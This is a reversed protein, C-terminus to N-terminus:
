YTQNKVEFIDPKTCNELTVYLNVVGCVCMCVCKFNLIALWIQPSEIDQNLFLFSFSFIYIKLIISFVIKAMKFWYERIFKLLVINYQGEEQSTEFNFHALMWRFLYKKVIPLPLPLHRSNDCSLQRNSYKPTYFYYSNNSQQINLRSMFLKFFKKIYLIKSGM